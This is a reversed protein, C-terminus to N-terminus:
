ETASDNTFPAASCGGGQPSPPRDLPGAPHPPEGGGQPSPNPSPHRLLPRVAEEIPAYASKFNAIADLDRVRFVQFGRAKLFRNKEADHESREPLDHSAGDIEVVIRASLWAFDVIYPGIPTERRFRAGFPRFSRLYAQMAKEGLTKKKRLERARDRVRPEIVSRTVSNGRGWGRGALPLPPV